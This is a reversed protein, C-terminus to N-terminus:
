IPGTINICCAGDVGALKLPYSFEFNAWSKISSTYWINMVSYFFHDFYFLGDRGKRAIELMLTSDVNSDLVHMPLMTHM